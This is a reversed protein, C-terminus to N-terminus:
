SGKTPTSGILIDKAKKDEIKKLAAAKALQVAKKAQLEAIQADLDDIDAEGMIRRHHSTIFTHFRSFWDRVSSMDTAPSVTLFSNDSNMSELEICTYGLLQGDAIVVFVGM